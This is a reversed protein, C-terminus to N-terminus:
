DRDVARIVPIDPGRLVHHEDGIVRQIIQVPRPIERVRVQFVEHPQHVAHRGEVGPIGEPALDRRLLIVGETDILFPTHEGAGEHGTLGVDDDIKVPARHGVGTHVGEPLGRIM